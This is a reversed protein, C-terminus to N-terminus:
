TEEDADISEKGDSDADDELPHPEGVENLAVPENMVDDPALPWFPFTGALPLGDQKPPILTGCKLGYGVYINAFKSGQAVTVAGPWVLSRVATVRNSKSDEGFKYVGRDGVVKISWAPSSELGKYDNM